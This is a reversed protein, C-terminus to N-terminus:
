EPRSACGAGGSPVTVTIVLADAGQAPVGIATVAAAVTSTPLTGSPKASNPPPLADCGAAVFAAASAMLVVAAGLTTRSM